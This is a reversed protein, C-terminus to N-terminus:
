ETGIAASITSMEEMIVASRDADPTGAIFGGPNAAQLESLEVSLAVYQQDQGLLELLRLQALRFARQEEVVAQYASDEIAEDVVWGPQYDATRSPTWAELDTIMAAASEPNAWVTMDASGGFQFYLLGYLEITEPTEEAVDMTFYLDTVARVQGFHLLSAALTPRDSNFCYVAGLFLSPANLSEAQDYASQCDVDSAEAPDYVELARSLEPVTLNPGPQQALLAHVLTALLVTQM